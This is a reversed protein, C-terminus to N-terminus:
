MEIDIYVVAGCYPCLTKFKLASLSNNETQQQNHLHEENSYLLSNQTEHQSNENSFSFFSSNDNDNESEDEFGFISENNNISTPQFDVTMDDWGYDIKEPRFLSKFSMKNEIRDLEIDLKAYNWGSSEQIKNDAIRDAKIIEESAESVICPVKQMGLKKCAKLRAHGKVVVNNKDIVIPVNFGNKRIVEVLADVTKDNKRPNRWYPIIDNIDKIVINLKQM